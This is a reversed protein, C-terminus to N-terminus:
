RYGNSNMTDKNPNIYVELDLFLFFTRSPNACKEDLQKTNPYLNKKIQWFLNYHYESNTNDHIM